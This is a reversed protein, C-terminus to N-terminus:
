GEACVMGPKGAMLFGGLDLEKAWSILKQRKDSSYIHHFHLWVRTLVDDIKMMNKEGTQSKDYTKLTELVLNDRIWDIIALISCDNSHASAIHKNLYDYFRRSLPMRPSRVIIEPASTTPYSHPLRCVIELPIKPVLCM